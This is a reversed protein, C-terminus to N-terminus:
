QSLFLYVNRIFFILIQYTTKSNNIVPIHLYRPGAAFPCFDYPGIKDSNEKSFREPDYKDPNKWVTNNHHLLFMNLGIMTGPQYTVGDITVEKSLVRSVNPVPAYLRM